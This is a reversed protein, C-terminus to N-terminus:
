YLLNNNMVKNKKLSSKKKHTPTSHLSFWTTMKLIGTVSLVPIRLIQSGSLHFAEIITQLFFKKVVFGSDSYATQGLSNAQVCWHFWSNHASRLLHAVTM